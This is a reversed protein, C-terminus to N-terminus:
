PMVHTDSTATSSQMPFLRLIQFVRQPYSVTVCGIGSMGCRYRTVSEGEAGGLVGEEM